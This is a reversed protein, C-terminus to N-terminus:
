QAYPPYSTLLKRTLLIDDIIYESSLNIVASPNISISGALYTCIHVFGETTHTKTAIDNPALQSTATKYVRSLVGYLLNSHVLLPTYNGAHLPLDAPVHALELCPFDRLLSKTFRVVPTKFDFDQRKLMPDAELPTPLIYPTSHIIAEAQNISMGGRLIAVSNSGRLNREEERYLSGLLLGTGISIIEQARKCLSCHMSIHACGYDMTHIYIEVYDSNFFRPHIQSNNHM